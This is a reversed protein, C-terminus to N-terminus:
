DGLIHSGKAAIVAKLRGKMSDVAAAVKAPSLRLATSRLTKKYQRASLTVDEGIKAKCAVDVAKWISYDLPM